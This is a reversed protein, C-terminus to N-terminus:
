INPFYIVCKNETHMKNVWTKFELNIYDFMENVAPNEKIGFYNSYMLNFEENRVYHLVQKKAEKITILKGKEAAYKQFNAAKRRIGTGSWNKLVHSQTLYSFWTEAFEGTWTVEISNLEKLSEVADGLSRTNFLNSYFRRFGSLLESPKIVTDPAVLLRCPCPRTIAGMQGLFEAANCASLCLILQFNTAKNIPTILEALEPWDISSGNEFILGDKIDGHCDIHILPIDKTNAIETLSKIIKRFEIANPFQFHDIPTQIKEEEFIGKILKYAEKGTKVENEELSELVVVRSFKHQINKPKTKM